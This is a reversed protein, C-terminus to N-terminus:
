TAGAGTSRAHGLVVAADLDRAIMRAAVDSIKQSHARAYGRLAAFAGETSLGGLQALFGKAQELVVRSDLATQLQANVMASDAAAREVVLAISAVHALGQALALDEDGLPGPATGFLGLVGLVLNPLRMPLAHVSAFGAAAAAPVFAPWRQAEAGLDAVLVPSGARYCDLCPGESRQLQFLELDHTRESSAAMLHLVGSSDALLLGAAVIDFLRACDRTLGAFLDLPDYGEVLSNAIAVFAATASAERSTAQRDTV